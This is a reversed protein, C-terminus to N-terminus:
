GRRSVWGCMFMAQYVQTVGVFGCGRLMEGVEAPPWLAVHSAYAQRMREAGEEDLFGGGRLTTFWLAELAAYDPAARDASLDANVLLGGPALRRHIERFFARRAEPDALFHSVLLATAGDFPAAEPLTDLTGVHLAVRESLGRAEAKQRCRALMAASPDVATFTWGPKGEALDFLEAGTGAGVILLRADDPLESLASRAILHLGDKLPALRASKADYEKAHDEGFPEPPGHGQSM